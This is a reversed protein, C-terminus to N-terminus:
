PPSVYGLPNVTAGNIRVEFHIHVGFSYGTTGGEAIQQGEEVYDDVNVLLKSNHAYLTYLSNGNEMLGHDIMIYKGYSSHTTATVVKGAAAAYVPDGFNVPIDLGRHMETRGNILREGYGSSINTHNAAAPWSLIGSGSYYTQKKQAEKLKELERITAELETNAKELDLYGQDIESDLVKMEKRYTEIYKGSKDIKKALETETALLKENEELAKQKMVELEDTAIQLADAKGNLEDMIKQQYNLISGAYEVNMIFEPLSNSNFIVGLINVNGEEYSSRLIQVFIEYKDEIDTKLDGMDDEHMKILNDLGILLEKQKEIKEQNLEIDRDLVKKTQMENLLDKERDDYKKENDKIAQEIKALQDEIAKLAAESSEITKAYMNIYYDGYTYPMIGSILFTIVVFLAMRLIKKKINKM